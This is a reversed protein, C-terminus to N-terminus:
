IDKYSYNEKESLQIENKYFEVADVSCLSVNLVLLM